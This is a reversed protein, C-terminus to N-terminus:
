MISCWGGEGYSTAMVALDVLKAPRKKNPDYLKGLPRIAEDAYKSFALWDLSPDPVERVSKNTLIAIYARLDSRSLLREDILDFVKDHFGFERIRQIPLCYNVWPNCGFVEEGEGVFDDLVELDIELQEDIDNYYNCIEDDDTCLRIVIWVPLGGFSDLTNKFEQQVMANAYGQEDTPMGDTAVVIVVRQGNSRLQNVYNTDNFDERIARLHKTLPTCGTPRSETMIRRVKDIDGPSNASFTQPFNRGPHNLLRFETNWGARGSIESHYEVTDGLERWRTCGIFKMNEGEGVVRHGDETNMSGSNDVIWIRRPFSISSERLAAILGPPFGQSTLWNDLVSHDQQPQVHQVDEFPPASAAPGVAVASAVPLDDNKVFM